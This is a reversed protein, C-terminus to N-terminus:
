SQKPGGGNELSDSSKLACSINSLVECIGNGNLEIKEFSGKSLNVSYSKAVVGIDESSFSIADGSKGNLQLIGQISGTKCEKM